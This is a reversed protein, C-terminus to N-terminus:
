LSWREDEVYRSWVAAHPSSGPDDGFSQWKLDDSPIRAVHPAVVWWESRRFFRMELRKVGGSTKLTAAGFRHMPVRGLVM